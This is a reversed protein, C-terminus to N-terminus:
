LLKAIVNWKRYMFYIFYLLVWLTLKIFTTSSKQFVFNNKKYKSLYKEIINSINLIGSSDFYLIQKKSIYIEVFHTGKESKKSLNAILSINENHFMPINDVSYTGRFSWSIDKILKDIYFNSIGNQNIM